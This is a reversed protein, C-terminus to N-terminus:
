QLTGLTGLTGKYLFPKVYAVGGIYLSVVVGV